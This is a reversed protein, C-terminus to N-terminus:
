CLIFKNDWLKWPASTWCMKAINEAWFNVIQFWPTLWRWGAPSKVQSLDAKSSAWGTTLIWKRPATYGHDGNELLSNTQFWEWNKSLTTHFVLFFCAPATHSIKSRINFALWLRSVHLNGLLIELPLGVHLWLALLSTSNM